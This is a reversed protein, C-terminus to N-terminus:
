PAQAQFCQQDCTDFTMSPKKLGPDGSYIWTDLVKIM